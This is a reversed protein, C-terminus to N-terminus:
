NKARNLQAKLKALHSLGKEQREEASHEKQRSSWDLDDQPLELLFRSPQTLLTEGFKQRLKTLTFTLEKQARTIGVYALRREEDINDEDISTQHPLIGEEMGMLYVFPFELGKAAHLTMLQVQNSNEDSGEDRELLERLTFCSVAQTLDMPEDLDSGNVMSTLWSFVQEVNKMRMEAVKASSSTEYLWQGYNIGHILREVAAVPEHEAQQRLQDIWGIFQQLATLKKATLYMTLGLDFSAQYLSKHRTAAWNALKQLTAPGIDRRPTNIMRLFANDDDPNTLIRLYAMIDKVEISSFFSSGGTIRYPIRNQMLVKELLRSQHNSRYLVAYDKYQTHNIFRHTMIEGVIAEVEKEENNAVLVKFPDGYGLKSFLKKEFLHPNNEILINAAKLIRGTSRYNQELMMVMLEPFDAKLQPINQPHAGRWSYISQDDDGVVTFRARKGVLLKILEYQNLNTDQYEDVLLYRIHDQWWNRIDEHNKLLLTPLMILDDFDLISCAKLQNEYLAYCQAFCTDQETKSNLLAKSPDILNTKWYSISRILQNILDRNNQLVDFTLESILARQDYEDFLTFNAKIGITAYDRKIIELGLAHFTSIWLGRCAKKGISHAIRAKMEKAAKNTFTVAAIQSAKYGCQLILYAIKNIIVRTKGSGAGALVLCPGSVFEVARQQNPNLRM